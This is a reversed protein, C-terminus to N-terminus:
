FRGEARIRSLTEPAMGLYSAVAGLPARQLIHPATEMLRRYRGTATCFHLDDFRRQMQVIGEGMLVRGFRELAPHQAYLDELARRSIRWLVSAELAQIGRIDPAATLFSVISVAFSGEASFWDTVDRGDPRLYYTRTLGQEVAWLYRCVAGPRLVEEGRAVEVRAWAACFAAYAAEPLVTDALLANPYLLTPAM